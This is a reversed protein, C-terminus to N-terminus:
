TRVLCKACYTSLCKESNIAPHIMKLLIQLFFFTLYLFVILIIIVPFFVFHINQNPLLTVNLKLNANLRAILHAATLSVVDSVFLEVVISLTWEVTSPSRDLKLNSTYTALGNGVIYLHNLPIIVLSFWTPFFMSTCWSLIIPFSVYCILATIVLPSSYILTKRVGLFLVVNEKGTVMKERAPQIEVIKEFCNRSQFLSSNQYNSTIHYAESRFKHFDIHNQDSWFVVTYWCLLPIYFVIM